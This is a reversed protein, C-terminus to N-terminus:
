KSGRSMPIFIAIINLVTLIISLRSYNSIFRRILGRDHVDFAASDYLLRRSKMGLM